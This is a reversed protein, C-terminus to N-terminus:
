SITIGYKKGLYIEILRREETTLTHKFIIIEALDGNFYSYSSGNRRALASGTYSTLATKVTSDSAMNLGNLYYNMGTSTSFTGSHIRAIPSSYTLDSSSSTYTLTYNFHTLRLVTDSYYGFSLNQATSNDTGGIFMRFSGSAVTARKQEVVFITYSSGILLSGDFTMYDNSGDFRIGPIGVNFVNDYFKPQNASTSQTANNKTVAEPNNDYWTSIATGNVESSIDFSTELSTEYWLVLDPIKNVPSNQTLLRASSLKAQKVMYSTQIVGVILLSVIMVVLSMEM